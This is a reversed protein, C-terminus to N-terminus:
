KAVAEKCKITPYFVMAGSEYKKCTLYKLKVLENIVNKIFTDELKEDKNKAYAGRIIGFLRKMTVIRSGKSDGKTAIFSAKVINSIIYEGQKKNILPKNDQLEPYYKDQSNDGVPITNSNELKIRTVNGNMDWECKEVGTDSNFHKAADWAEEETKFWGEEHEGDIVCSIRYPHALEHKYSNAIMDFESYYVIADGHVRYVGANEMVKLFEEWNSANIIGGLTYDPEKKISSYEEVLQEYTKTGTNIGAKKMAVRFEQWTTAALMGGLTYDKKNNKTMINEGRMNNNTTNITVNNEQTMIVEEKDKIEEEPNIDKWSFNSIIDEKRFNNIARNYEVSDAEYNYSHKEGTHIDILLFAPAGSADYSLKITNRSIEISEIEDPHFGKFVDAYMPYEKVLKNIVKNGRRNLLDRVMDEVSWCSKGIGNIIGYFDSDNVNAELIKATRIFDNKIEEAETTRESNYSNVFNVLKQIVDKRTM